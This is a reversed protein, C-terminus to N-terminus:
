LVGKVYMEVRNKLAARFDEPTAGLRIALKVLAEADKDTEWLIKSEYQGMYWARMPRVAELKEPM